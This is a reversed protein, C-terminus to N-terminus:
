EFLNGKELSLKFQLQLIENAKPRIEKKILPAFV